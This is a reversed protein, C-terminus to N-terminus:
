GDAAERVWRRAKMEFRALSGPAVSVVEVRLSLSAQLGQGIAEVVAAADAGAAPEAEVRMDTMGRTERLVVRYEAVGPVRQVVEDVAGPYVNVSRVIAMDDVRALVGGELCLETSGCDCRDLRRGVVLDGTRYRLLPSGARGLTTLVLEGRTGEASPALREGSAPDILEAIYARESVHLAGPRVACPYSVPGVETMGHHDWVRAGPWLQEIRERVAPVSGGPEGAVLIARLSSCDLGLGARTQGLRIAYTPTCCLATARNEALLNLRAESSLSGGALVMAGLGQAAEFATWFGLFPGFSFAFLVRDGAGVGAASFVERWTGLMWAWSQPTDLWRIPRATTGSTQHLRTYRQLPYSLNLGYPPHWIQDEAIERKSVLPMAACFQEVSAVDPGIGAARLRPAWFRNQGLEALLGRLRDLQWAAIRARDAQRGPPQEIM